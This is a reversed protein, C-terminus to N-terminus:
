SKFLLHTMEQLDKEDKKIRSKQLDAHAYGVMERMEQLFMARFETTM